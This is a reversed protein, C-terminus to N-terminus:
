GPSFLISIGPGNTLAALFYRSSSSSLYHGSGNAAWEIYNGAVIPHPDEFPRLSCRRHYTHVIHNRGVHDRALKCLGGSTCPKKLASTACPSSATFVPRLFSTKVAGAFFNRRIDYAATCNPIALPHSLLDTSSCISIDSRRPRRVPLPTAGAFGAAGETASDIRLFSVSCSETVRTVCSSCNACFGRYRANSSFDSASRCIWNAFIYRSSAAPIYTLIRTRRDPRM